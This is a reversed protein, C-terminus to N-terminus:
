STVRMSQPSPHMYLVKLPDDSGKGSDRFGTRRVHDSSGGPLVGSTLYHRTVDERDMVAVHGRRKQADVGVYLTDQM